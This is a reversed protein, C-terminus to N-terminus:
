FDKVTKNEVDPIGMGDPFKFQSSEGPPRPIFDNLPRGTERSAKYMNLVHLFTWYSEKAPQLEIAQKVAHEAKAEFGLFEYLRALNFWQWHAGQLEVLSTFYPLVMEALEVDNNQIAAELYFPTARLLLTHEAYPHQVLTEFETVGLMPNDHGLGQSFRGMRLEQLGVSVIVVLMVLAGVQLFRHGAASLTYRRPFYQALLSGLLTFFLVLLAPHRLPWSFMSMILFPFLLFHGFMVRSTCHVTGNLFGYLRYLYVGIFIAIPLAVVLGGECLLQLFENHSWKAYGMAEYPVFGLLDHAALAYKPLFFQFNDLGVGFLPHDLFILVSAAWFLFRADANIGTTSLGRPAFGELYYNLAQAMAFALGAVFLLKFFLLRQKSNATLYRKRVVLLLLFSVSLIFALLGARSGTLFFVLSVVFFPLCRLPKFFGSTKLSRYDGHLSFYIFILVGVLLLLAFLNSQGYIGAIRISQNKPLLYPILMGSSKGNLLFSVYEYLGLASVLQIFVLFAKFFFADMGRPFLSPVVILAYLLFICLLAVAKLAAPFYFANLCVVPLLLFVPWLYRKSCVSRFEQNKCSLIIAAVCFSFFLFKAPHNFGFFLPFLLLQSAIVTAPIFHKIKPLHCM